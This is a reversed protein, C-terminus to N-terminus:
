RQREYATKACYVDCAQVKWAKEGMLHPFPRTSFVSYANKGCIPCPKPHYDWAFRRYLKM